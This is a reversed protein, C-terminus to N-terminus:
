LLPFEKFGVLECEQKPTIGFEDKVKKQMIRALEILDNSTANGKNVLMNSHQYSVVADGVNLAGKVGVKDLYYAVYIMKKNTGPVELSVEHPHFNRFFSGCTGASPYRALRHRIIEKRRGRAHAVELDTAKKLKLTLNTLIHKKEHLKSSDYGLNFWKAPVDFTKGTAREIVTGQVMFDSLSFQFYHMNNYAAGGMTGPTGSFEELGLINNDLCYSILKPMHVGAGAHVLVHQDDIHEHSIKTLQPQIVLGDFGNDSILANAGGGLVFINLKNKQAYSLANLLNEVTTPASFFRASGGTQFWNKNKLSVNNQIM